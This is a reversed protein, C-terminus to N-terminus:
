STSTSAASTTTGTDNHFPPETAENQTVEYQLSTLKRRLVDDAPKTYTNKSLVATRPGHPQQDPGGEAAASTRCGALVGLALLSVVAAGAIGSDLTLLKM